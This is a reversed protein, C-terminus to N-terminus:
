VPVWARVWDVLMAAPILTPGGLSGHQMALIIYHPSNAPQAASAGLALEGMKVGDYYSTVSTATRITSFTHWGGNMAKSGFGLGAGSPPGHWTSRADGFGEMIDNEGNQPWNEGNSWFAPWDAIKGGAAPLYIRAELVGYSFRKSMNRSTVIAGFPGSTLALRLVKGNTTSGPDEVVSVNSTLYPSDEYQNVPGTQGTGFWGTQWVSTDLSVFDDEFDIKWNGPIGLPVKPGPTPTPTPTPAPVPTPITASAYGYVTIGFLSYGWITARKTCLVRIHKVGILAPSFTLADQGGDGLVRTTATSWNTGDLSTQILYDTAYAAEWDLVVKTIDHVGGLNVSLWEGSDSPTLSSAWRTTASGDVTATAPTAASEESSASAAKGVSIISVAPTPTPVIAAYGFVSLAFLSFGWITARKTCLVRLFRGTPAGTFSIVQDQGGNSGSVASITRWETGTDSVQIQYDAAFATEWDIVVKTITYNKQLDVSIWESAASPNASAWRTLSKGDVALGAAYSASEQSSASAPKGASLLTAVPTTM